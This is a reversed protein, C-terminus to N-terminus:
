SRAAMAILPWALLGIVALNACLVIAIDLLSDQGRGHWPKRVYARKM